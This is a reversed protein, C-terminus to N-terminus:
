FILTPHTSSPPLTSELCTCVRLKIVLVQFCAFLILINIALCWLLGHFVTHPRAHLANMPPFTHMSTLTSALHWDQHWCDQHWEKPFAWRTKQFLTEWQGPAGSYALSVQWHPGLVWGGRGWWCCYQFCTGAHSIKWMPILNLNEHKHPLCKASQAM